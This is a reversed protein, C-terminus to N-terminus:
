GRRIAPWRSPHRAGPPAPRAFGPVPPDDSGSAPYTRAPLLEAVQRLTSRIRLVTGDPRMALRLSQGRRADPIPVDGISQRFQVIIEDLM